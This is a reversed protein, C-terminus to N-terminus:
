GIYVWVSPILTAGNIGMLLVILAFVVWFVNPSDNIFVFCIGLGTDCLGMLLNGILIMVRKRWRYLLLISYLAFIVQVTGMIFVVYDGFSNNFSSTVFGMQAIYANAGTLQHM